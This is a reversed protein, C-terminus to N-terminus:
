ATRWSDVANLRARKPVTCRLVVLQHRLVLIEVQLRSRSRFLLLLTGLVTKLTEVM